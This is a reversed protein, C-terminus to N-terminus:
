ECLVLLVLLHSPALSNYVSPCQPGHGPSWEGRLVRLIVFAGEGESEKTNSGTRRPLHNQDEAADRSV